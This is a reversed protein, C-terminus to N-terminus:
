GERTKTAMNAKLQWKKFGAQKAERLVVFVKEFDSDKHARIIVVTKVQGTSDGKARAAEELDKFENKLYNSVEALSSLPERGPVVLKGEANLNLYLVDTDRKDAPKASEAIPLMVDRSVQETTFNAVLIFFMVLQLVMDLMPTLNPEAKVGGDGGGGHSM